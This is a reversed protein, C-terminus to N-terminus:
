VTDFNIKKFEEILDTKLTLITKFIEQFIYITEKFNDTIINIALVKWLALIIKIYNKKNNKSIQFLDLLIM